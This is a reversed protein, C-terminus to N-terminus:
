KELNKSPKEQSWDPLPSEIDGVIKVRGIMLGEVRGENIECLSLGDGNMRATSWASEAVWPM